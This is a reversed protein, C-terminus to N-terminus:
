YANYLWWGFTFELMFEFNFDGGGLDAALTLKGYSAVRLVLIFLKDFSKHIINADQCSCHSWLNM